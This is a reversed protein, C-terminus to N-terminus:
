GCTERLDTEVIKRVIADANMGMYQTVLPVLCQRQVTNMCNRYPNPEPGSPGGAGTFYVYLERCNNHLEHRHQTM